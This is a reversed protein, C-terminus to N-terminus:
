YFRLGVTFDIQHGLQSLDDSLTYPIGDMRFQKIQNFIYKIEFGLGVYSNLVIDYGISAHIGFSTNRIKIKESMGEQITKIPFYNLMLGPGISFRFLNRNDLLSTSSLYCYSVGFYHRFNHENVTVLNTDANVINSFDGETEANSSFFRYSLEAGSGKKNSLSYSLNVVKGIKLKNEHDEIKSSIAIGQSEPLIYHVYGIGAGISIRKIRHSNERKVLKKVNKNEISVLEDKKFSTVDKENSSNGLLVVIKDNEFAITKGKHGGKGFVNFVNTKDKDLGLTINKLDFFRIEKVKSFPESIQYEGHAANLFSLHIQNSDIDIIKIEKYNDSSSKM